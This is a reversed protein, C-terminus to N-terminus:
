CGSMESQVYDLLWRGAATLLQRNDRLTAIAQLIKEKETQPSFRKYWTNAVVQARLVLGFTYVGHLLGEVPRLSDSRWPSPLRISSSTWLPQMDHLADLFVHASEHLIHDATIRDDPERVVFVAGPCNAHSFGLTNGSYDMILFAEVLSLGAWGISDAMRTALKRAQDNRAVVSSIHLTFDPYTAAMVGALPKYIGNLIPVDGRASAMSFDHLDDMSGFPFAGSILWTRTAPRVVEPLNAIDIAFAGRARLIAVNAVDRLRRRRILASVAKANAAVVESDIEM